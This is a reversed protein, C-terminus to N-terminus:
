SLKCFLDSTLDSTLQQHSKLDPASVRDNYHNGSDVQIAKGGLTEGPTQKAQARAETHM